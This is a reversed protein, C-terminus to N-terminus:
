SSYGYGSTLFLIRLRSEPLTDTVQHFSSYGYGATLFFLEILFIVWVVTDRVQHEHQITECESQYETSCTIPGATQCDKVLSERCTM